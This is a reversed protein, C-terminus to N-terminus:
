VDVGCRRKTEPTMADVVGQTIRNELETGELGRGLAKAAASGPILKLASAGLRGRIDNGATLDFLFSLGDTGASVLDAGVGLVASPALGSLAAIYALDSIGNTVDSGAELGQAIAGALNQFISCDNPEDSQPEEQKEPPGSSSGGGGTGDFPGSPEGGGSCGVVTYKWGLVIVGKRDTYINSERMISCLGTPDIANVPDNGVYAYMNMGDAYGIPDTQMFRGLRASYMRAKYYYLGAEPIYVQGTYGFRSALATSHVGYAGFSRITANNGDKNARLVISGQRDAYLFYANGITANSGYYEVLPDDGASLGHVYRKLLANNADYEAILADGDYVNRRIPNGNADAVEFLRGLPDYRLRANHDPGSVEVLRNEVDYAYTHTGDSTLNGNDDYDYNWGWVSEYQNLGNSVYDIATNKSLNPNYYSNSVNEYRVQGAPNYAFLTTVDYSSGNRTIRMDDIRNAQDYDLVHRFATAGRATQALRGRYDFSNDILVNGSPDGIRSLRSMHDYGYTFRKGDPYTLGNRRGAPDYQMASNTLLGSMLNHQGVVDGHINYDFSVGEGTWGDFRAYLLQGFLNYTYYVDRTHTASLSPREQVVKTVVRNLNDYVYNIEENRRTLHKVINGNRDYEVAERDGSTSTHDQTKSPYHIERVRGFDDFLYSTRNDNADEVFEIRGNPTYSLYASQQQRPTGVGSWTETVEDRGNYYNKSIRDAGHPGAAGAQCADAPTASTTLPANMRVASCRLRGAIDYSYEVLSHQTSTGPVIHRERAVRGHADYETIYEQNAGFASWATDTVGTTTGLERKTVQGDANYSIRSAIRGNGGSGDPDPSITGVLQGAADYKYTTTDHDYAGEMPGNVSTVNGLRDYTFRTQRLLGGNGQKASIKLVELNPGETNNYHLETLLEDAQGTCTEATRCRRVTSLTAIPSSNQVLNGNADRTKAYRNAYSYTTRARVDNRDPPLLVYNLLGTVPNYDYNTTNGEADTTSAPKFCNVQGLCNQPFTSSTTIPTGGNRGYVDTQYVRGYGDRRFVTKQGEPLTLSTLRGKADYQYDTSSGSNENSYRIDKFVTGNTTNAHVYRKRGLQDHSIGYLVTGSQHWTYSRQYENQRTVTSVRSEGDYAYQTGEATEGPRKVGVLRQDSRTRYHAERGLIDRATEITDSGSVTKGYELFPWSQSLNCSDAVPDCYEDANNVATVRAMRFWDNDGQSAEVNNAAYEFKLQYGANNQVSQLRIVHMFFGPRFDIPPVYYNYRRYTLTIVRGDPSIIKTAVGSTSGYYSEGNSVLTRDFIYETGAATRYRYESATETLQGGLGQDDEWNGNVRTFKRSSNGIEISATSPGIKISIQYNHRWGYRVKFRRHTLGNANGISISSSPVVVSGSALDVGNEDLPLALPPPELAYSQAFATGSATATSVVAASCLLAKRVNMIAGLGARDSKDKEQKTLGGRKKAEM